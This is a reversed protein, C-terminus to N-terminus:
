PCIAHRLSFAIPIWGRGPGARELKETQHELAGKMSLAKDDGYRKDSLGRGARAAADSANKEGHGKSM